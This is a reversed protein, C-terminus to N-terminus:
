GIALILAKGSVHSTDLLKSYLPSGCRMPMANAHEERVQEPTSPGAATRFYRPPNDSKRGVIVAEIAASLGFKSVLFDPAHYNRDVFLEEEVL